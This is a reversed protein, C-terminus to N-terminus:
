SPPAPSPRLSLEFWTNDPSWTNVDSPGAVELRLPIPASALEEPDVEVEQGCEEHVLYVRGADFELLVDWPGFECACRSTTESM